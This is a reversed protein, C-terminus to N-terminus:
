FHTRWASVYRSSREWHAANFLSRRHSRGVTPAHRFFAVARHYASVYPTFRGDPSKDGHHLASDWRKRPAPVNWARMARDLGGARYHIVAGARFGLIRKMEYDPSKRDGPLFAQAMDGLMYPISTRAAPKRGRVRKCQIV